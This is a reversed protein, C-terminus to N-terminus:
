DTLYIENALFTHWDMWLGEIKLRKGSIPLKKEGPSPCVISKVDKLDKGKRNIELAEENWGSIFSFRVDVERGQYVADFKGGTSSCGDSEKVIAEIYDQRGSAAAPGASVLLLWAFAFCVPLLVFMKKTGHM